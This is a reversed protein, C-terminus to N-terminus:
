NNEFQSLNSSFTVLNVLSCWFHGLIPWFLWFLNKQGFPRCLPGCRRTHSLVIFWSSIDRSKAMHVSFTLFLLLSKPRINMKSRLGSQTFSLHVGNWGKHLTLLQQSYGPCPCFVIIFFINYRLQQGFVELSETDGTNPCTVHSMHCTVHSM